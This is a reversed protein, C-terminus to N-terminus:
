ALRPCAALGFGLPVYLALRWESRLHQALRTCDSCALSKTPRITHFPFSPSSVSVFVRVCWCVRLRSRRTGVGHMRNKDCHTILYMRKWVFLIAAILAAYTLHMWMSTWALTKVVSNGNRM